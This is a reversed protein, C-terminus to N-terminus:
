IISYNDIKEEFANRGELIIKALDAYKAASIITAWPEDETWADGNKFGAFSKRSDDYFDYQEEPEIDSDRPSFKDYIKGAWESYLDTSMAGYINVCFDDKLINM